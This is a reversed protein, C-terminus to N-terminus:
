NKYEVAAPETTNVRDGEAYMIYEVEAPEMTKVSDGKAHKKKYEVAAANDVEGHLSSHRRLAHAGETNETKISAGETHKKHYKVETPEKNVTGHLSGDQEPHPIKLAHGGQVAGHLVRGPEPHPCELAHAGQVAGHLARGQRPQPSKLAHAGQQNNEVTEEATILEYHMGNASKKYPGRMVSQKRTPTEYPGRMFSQQVAQKLYGETYLTHNGRIIKVKFQHVM